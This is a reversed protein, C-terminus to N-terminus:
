YVSGLNNLTTAEGSPDGVQRCLPLAQQYYALAQQKDGLADYVSGMNTLTTAEGSRDGVQRFLPLAQQYYALAQQQDGLASYVLGLNTLTAAEGSPDGVQRFLPLAQQYYALAQQKDGLASYVGGLSTLTTARDAPALAQEGALELLAGAWRLHEQHRARLSLFHRVDYYFALAREPGGAWSWEWAHDVQEWFQEGARWDQGPLAQYYAAHRQAPEGQEHAQQLLALAYARLLNHQRFVPIEGAAAGEMRELLGRRQLQRAAAEAKEVTGDGWVAALAALDFPAAACVGLARFRRRIDDDSLRDYSLKLCAEVSSERVERGELKLIDLAPQTRLQRALWPLDEAGNDCLRAALDLALPLGGTLTIVAGAAEGQRELPGLFNALMQRGEADSLVGLREVGQGQCLANSLPLDRSTILVGRDPPLVYELLWRGLDIDWLDDLIALLRGRRALAQQVRAARQELRPEDQLDIGLRLAIRALVSDKAEYGVDVWLVGGPFHPALEGAVVRALASKGMGGMAQIAVSVDGTRALADRLRQLEARRGAFTKPPPPVQMPLMEPPRATEKEFLQGHRLRMFLVPIAWEVQQRNFLLLRAENLARDVVGHDLLKTYFDRTLQQALAMPVLDQMAVVAPIGAQVLKPGLGVFPNEARTGADRQASQCAALFVLHPPPSQATLKTKLDEDVEVRCTGDEQELYLAAAGPGGQGTRRFHGHALFHLVHHGSGHPGPLYRLVNQLSTVGAQVQYGEAQLRRQLEPSLGTRGPLLTVQMQNTRRLDGLAQHLNEVEAEVDIAALNYQTKLDTPNAIAFLMRIPREAVPLGEAAELATFRSFPTLTSVALPLPQGKHMHYLREWPLAHLEAAREDIWLRVRVRGEAEAEARGTVKDYARRIPGAILADFLDLGYGEGDLQALLLRQRDLRLEGAFHSGDDLDASVGYAGNEKAAEIHILIDTYMDPMGNRGM